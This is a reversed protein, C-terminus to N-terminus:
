PAARPRIVSDGAVNPPRQGQGRVGVGLVRARGRGANRIRYPGKTRVIAGEGRRLHVPQRGAVIFELAGEIVFHLVDREIPNADEIDGGVEYDAVIAALSWQSGSLLGYIDVHEAESHLMQGAGVRLVELEPREDAAEHALLDPLEVDYFAALRALRSVTVDSRGQELLSLFSSSIGTAEALQVLSLGQAHRLERLRGALKEIDM